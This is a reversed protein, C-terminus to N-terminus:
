QSFKTSLILAIMNVYGMLSNDNPKVLPIFFYFGNM